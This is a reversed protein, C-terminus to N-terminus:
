NHKAVVVKANKLIDGTAVSKYAKQIIEQITGDEGPKETPITNLAEMFTPDFKDGAQMKIEEFGEEKILAVLKEYISQIGAEKDNKKVSSEMGREFDDLIEVLKIVLDKSASQQIQTIRAETTRRYNDFDAMLKLRQEKGQDDFGDTQIEEANAISKNRFQILNDLPAYYCFKTEGITRVKQLRNGNKSEAELFADYDPILYSIYEWEDTLIEKGPKPESLEIFKLGFFEEQKEEPIQYALIKRGAHSIEQLFKLGLDELATCSDKCIEKSKTQFNASDMQLEWKSLSKTVEKQTREVLKELKHLQLKIM